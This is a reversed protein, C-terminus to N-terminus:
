YFNFLILKWKKIVRRIVFLILRSGFWFFVRVLVVVVVFVLVILLMDFCVWFVFLFVVGFFVCFVLFFFIM